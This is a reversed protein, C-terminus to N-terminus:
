HLNQQIPRNLLTARAKAQKQGRRKRRWVLVGMVSLMSVALGMVSVALKYPWGWMSAMHLASIWSRITDGAATGTPLWSAILQGNGADLFITTLGKRERVDRRSRVSYRYVGLSAEYALATEEIVHFHERQALAAMQTRGQILAAPWDLHPLRTPQRQLVKEESLQHAFVPQMVAAYVNYLNFAVGSWAFVLLMGWLWLGGARHLDYVLKYSGGHRRVLWSPRWRLLWPRAPFTLAAGVFCDITWIIAVVGFVLLGTEGLALAEHLREVFPLWNLRGQSLEGWLRQDLVKGTYPDVFVENNALPTTGSARLYFVMSHGAPASLPAYVVQAQPYLGAIRERLLLPDQLPAGPAPPTVLLVQPALWSELEDSWALMSGTLGIVLLFGAMLLGAYRHLVALVTRM